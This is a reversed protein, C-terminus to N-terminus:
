FAALQHLPWNIFRGTPLAALQHLPWNTFRGTLTRGTLFRHAACKQLRAPLKSSRQFRRM